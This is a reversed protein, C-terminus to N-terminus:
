FRISVTHGQRVVEGGASKIAQEAALFKEKNRELANADLTEPNTCLSSRKYWSRVSSPNYRRRLAILAADANANKNSEADNQTEVSYIQKQPLSFSNNTEMEVLQANTAPTPSNRREMWDIGADVGNGIKRGIANVIREFRGPTGDDIKKDYEQGAGARYVEIVAICFIVGFASFIAVASLLGGWTKVYSNRKKLAIEDAKTISSIHADARSQIKNATAESASSAALLASTREAEIATAKAEREAEITAIKSQASSIHSQAWGHGNAVKARNSAIANEQAKIKSAYLAANSEIRRDFAANISANKAELQKDIGQLQKEFSDDAKSLDASSISAKSAEVIEYGGDRHLMTSVFCLPIAIFLIPFIMAISWKNDWKKRFFFRFVFPMFKSLGGEIILVIALTLMLSLLVGGTRMLLSETTLIKQLVIYETIGSLVHGANKVVRITPMIPGWFESFDTKRLQEQNESAQTNEDQITGFFAM